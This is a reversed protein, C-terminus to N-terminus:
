KSWERYEDGQTKSQALLTMLEFAAETTKANHIQLSILYIFIFCRFRNKNLFIANENAKLEQVIKSV